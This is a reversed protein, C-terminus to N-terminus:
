PLDGTKQKTHTNVINENIPPKIIATTQQYDKFYNQAVRKIDAFTVNQINEVYQDAFHPSGSVLYSYTLNEAIDSVRQNSFIHDAIIKKKARDLEEQTVGDTRIQEILRKIAGIAPKIKDYELTASFIFSGREYPPTWSLASVSLALQEDDKLAKYLRSTRGSGLIIALVDLPYLDNDMLSVTPFGIKMSPVRAAPHIQEAWRPILQEEERLLPIQLTYTPHFNKTLEILDRLVQEGSINGVVTFVINQPQYRKKYYALLDQRTLSKFLTEYGIVPYKLPSAAFATSSFLYWLQRDPNNQGLKFEQLIVPKERDIESQEFTCQTIYSFLLEAATKWKEPTTNIFYMTKDYSTSANSAGGLEKLIEQNEKESRISTTGGSVVHELYHSIGAGLFEEENVSGSNVTIKCTVVPSYDIEKVLLTLGTKLIVFYEGDYSPLIREIREM